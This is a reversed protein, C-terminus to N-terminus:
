GPTYRDDLGSLRRARTELQLSPQLRPFFSKEIRIIGYRHQEVLSNRRCCGIRKFCFEDGAAALSTSRISPALSPFSTELANQAEFTAMQLGCRACFEVM